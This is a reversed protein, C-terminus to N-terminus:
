SLYIKIRRLALEVHEPKIWYHTVMRFGYPGTCDLWINDAKMKETLGAADLRADKHLGFYVMNTRNVSMDIDVGPISALGEALMKANQHDEGLRETMAELAVIGAAAFVGAQRMAGGLQKRVRNARFIFEESGVILSGVPACLGKSLCFTISDAAQTLRAVDTNLAVAANFIRAGDIHLKIGRRHALDGVADIYDAPIPQGGSASHTNELAILSTQADHPDDDGFISDELDQLPMIGNADSTITWPLVGGLGSLSGAESRYVHARRDLVVRENRQCHTLLCTVNGMTGSAVLLGAEKGFREAAIKQLHNVTPDEGYVDDGVEAELMAQRMATTPHTVTDSRFDIKDM